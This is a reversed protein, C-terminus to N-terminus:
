ENSIDESTKIAHSHKYKSSKPPATNSDEFSRNDLKLKLSCRYIKAKVGILFLPLNEKLVKLYFTNQSKKLTM